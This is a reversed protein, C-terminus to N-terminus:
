QREFTGMLEWEEDEYRIYISITDEGYWKIKFDYTYTHSRDYYPDYYSILVDGTCTSSDYNYKLSYVTKEGDGTITITGTHDANMRIVQKNNNYYDYYGSSIMEWTGVISYSGSDGDKSSKKECAVFLFSALVTVFGAILLSLKLNKMIITGKIDRQAETKLSYYINTFCNRHCLYLLKKM